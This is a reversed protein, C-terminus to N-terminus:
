QGFLRELRGFGSVKGVLGGFLGFEGQWFSASFQSASKLSRVQGFTSIALSVSKSSDFGIGVQLM